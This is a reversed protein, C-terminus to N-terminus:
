DNAIMNAVFIGIILIATVILAGAVFALKKDDAFELDETM